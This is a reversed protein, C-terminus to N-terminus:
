SRSGFYSGARTRAILSRVAAMAEGGGTENLPCWGIISPHNRDRLVIERWENVAHCVAGLDGWNLGWSPYEGWLIYGLRDAWYLLRPEFVKQHLRAGNFGAAMSLEIDRRLAEDSPATYIGDPYYGQDLVLRQFVRQGNILFSMGDISVERLGLYSKVSDIVQGDRLVDLALDYLFPRGPAWPTVKSLKVVAQTSRGAAPVTEEGVVEGDATARLRLSVGKCAGDLWGRFLIRGGNLDPTLAFERLYTEGVAELWVTQWIGTTRTYVCGESM